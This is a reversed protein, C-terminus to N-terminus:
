DDFLCCSVIGVGVLGCCVVDCSGFLRMAEVADGQTEVRDRKIDEECFWWLRPGLPHHEEGAGVHATRSIGEIQRCIYVVSLASVLPRSLEGFGCGGVCGIM